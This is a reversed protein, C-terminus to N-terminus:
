PFVIPVVHGVFISLYHSKNMEAIDRPLRFRFGEEARWVEIKDIEAVDTARHTRLLLAALSDTPDTTEVVETRAVVGAM